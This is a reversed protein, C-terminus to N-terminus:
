IDRIIVEMPLIFYRNEEGYNLLKLLFFGFINIDFCKFRLLEILFIPLLYYM